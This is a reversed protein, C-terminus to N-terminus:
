LSDKIHYPHLYPVLSVRNWVDRLQDVIKKQEDVMEYAGNADYAEFLVAWTMWQDM